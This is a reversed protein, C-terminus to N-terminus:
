WPGRISDRELRPSLHGSKCATLKQFLRHRSGSGSPHKDRLAPTGILLRASGQVQSREPEIDCREFPMREASSPDFRNDLDVVRHLRDPKHQQAGAPRDHQAGDVPDANQIFSVDEPSRRESLGRPGCGVAHGHVADM